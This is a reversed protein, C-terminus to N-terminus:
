TEKNRATIRRLGMELRITLLATHEGGLIQYLISSEEELAIRLATPNKADLAAYSRSLFRKEIRARADLGELYRSFDSQLLAEKNM